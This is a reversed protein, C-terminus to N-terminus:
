NAVKLINIYTYVSSSAQMTGSTSTPRLDIYDGQNLRIQGVYEGEGNEPIVRGVRRFISGNKYLQLSNGVAATFSMYGSVQYVGPSPAVFKWTGSGTTVSGHSDYEKTDFNVPTNATAAQGTTVVYSAVVTESAGIASSGSTKAISFYNTGTGANFAPSSCNTVARITVLDGANLPVALVVIAPTLETNSSSGAFEGKAYKQVGNIFVAIEAFQNAAFTGGIDVQAAIDYVGASPVTYTGSSYSGHTDKVLTPYTVTNFSGNLTGTPTGAYNAGVIRGDTDNSMQVTSSWGLIPADFYVSVDENGLAINAETAKTLAGGNTNQAFFVTGLTSGDFFPYALYDSTNILSSSSSSGMWVGSLVQGASAGTMKTTDISMGSPLSVTATSGSVSSPLFGGRVQVTDGVRRWYFKVRTPTGFGSLTPTYPQWDTVPCGLQTLQPGIAVNDWNFTWATSTTSGVFFILRYSTSNSNTQFRGNFRKSGDMTYAAPQILVANTKDYLWVQVDGITGAGAFALGTASYDFSVQLPKALDAQDITFDLSVGQGQCNSAPKSLQFSATGRLPNVTLQGLTLRATGGTGDQPSTGAADAFLNWGTTGSEADPNAAAYNIGSTPKQELATIRAANSNSTDVVGFWKVVEVSYPQASYDGDLEITANDIEKYYLSPTRNTDVFREAKQGNVFVLLQGNTTKIPNGSGDLGGVGITYTMTTLAVRTKGAVQSLTCNIPTGTGDLMAQAQGLLYGMEQTALAHWRVKFGLLNVSGSGTSKNAFFRAYLNTGATAFGTAQLTDTLNVTRSANATWTSGDVSASFAVNPTVATDLIIDGIASTDEYDVLCQDISSTINQSASEGDGTYANMDATHVCQSVCAAAATPNTTFAAEITVSTQSAVATLKRAQTGVVLIDGAKITFAPTGSLTMATGTGTVTKSADYNLKFYSNTAPTLPTYLTSDTFGTTTNILANSAIADSFDEAIGARYITSTLDKTDYGNGSGSSFPGTVGGQRRMFQGTTGDYWVDGDKPSAPASSLPWFSLGKKIDFFNAAM